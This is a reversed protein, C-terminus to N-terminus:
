LYCCGVDLRTQIQILMDRATTMYSEWMMSNPIGELQHRRLSIHGLVIGVVNGHGVDPKGLTM